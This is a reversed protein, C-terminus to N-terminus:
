PTDWRGGEDWVPVTDVFLAITGTTTSTNKATGKDTEPTGTRFAIYEGAKQKAASLSEDSGGVAGGASATFADWSACLSASAGRGKVRADIRDVGSGNLTALNFSGAKVIRYPGKLYVKAIHAVATADTTGLTFGAATEGGWKKTLGFWNRTIVGFKPDSYFNSM